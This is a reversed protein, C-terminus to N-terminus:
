KRLMFHIISHGSIKLTDLSMKFELDHFYFVLCIMEIKVPNHFHNSAILASDCIFLFAHYQKMFFSSSWWNGDYHCIPLSVVIPQASPKVQMRYISIILIMSSLFKSCWSWSTSFSQTVIPMVHYRYCAFEM